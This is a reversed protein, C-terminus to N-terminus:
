DAAVLADVDHDRSPRQAVEEVSSARERSMGLAARAGLVSLGAV